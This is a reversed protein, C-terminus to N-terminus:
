GPNWMTLSCNVVPQTLITCTHMRAKSIPTLSGLEESNNSDVKHKTKNCCYFQNMKFQEYIRTQLDPCNNQASASSPHNVSEVVPPFWRHSCAVGEYEPNGAPQELNTQYHLAPSSRGAPPALRCGSRQQGSGSGATGRERIRLLGGDGCPTEWSEQRLGPQARSACRARCFIINRSCLLADCSGNCHSSKFPM